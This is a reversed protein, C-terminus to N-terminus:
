FKWTLDLQLMNYNNPYVGNTDVSYGTGLASNIRSGHAYTATAFTNDSLMYLGSTAWGEMNVQANMIDSDIQNQDLAFAEIHQWWLRGSWDSKKM